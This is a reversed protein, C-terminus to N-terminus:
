WWHHILFWRHNKDELTTSFQMKFAHLLGILVSSWLVYDDLMTQWNWFPRLMEIAWFCLWYVWFRIILSTSFITEKWTFRMCVANKFYSPAMVPCWGIEPSKLMTQGAWFQAYRKKLGFFLAMVVEHSITLFMYKSHSKAFFQRYYPRYAKLFPLITCKLICSEFNTSINKSSISIIHSVTGFFIQLPGM